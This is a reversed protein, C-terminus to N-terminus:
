VKYKKKESEVTCVHQLSYSKVTPYKSLLIQLLSENQHSDFLLDGAGFCVFYHVCQCAISRFNLVMFILCMSQSISIQETTLVM